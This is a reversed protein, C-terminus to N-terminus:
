RSKASSHGEPFRSRGFTTFPHSGAADVNLLSDRLAELEKRGRAAEERMSILSKLSRQGPDRDFVDKLAQGTKEADKNISVLAQRMDGVRDILKGIKQVAQDVRADYELVAKTRREDAM